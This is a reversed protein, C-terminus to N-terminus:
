HNASGSLAIQGRRGADDPQEATIQMTPFSHPDAASWMHVTASGNPGVTFTGATILGPHGPRSGPRTYWCEYFRGPGLDKLSHVTLQVSWGNSAHEAHAVGSAAGGYPARLPITYTLTAPAPRSVWVAAGTGIAAVSAAALSLAQIHRRRSTAAGTVQGSRSGAPGATSHGPATHAVEPGPQTASPRAQIGPGTQAAEALRAAWEVRALTRAELGPPPQEEASGAGTLPNRLMRAVPELEAAATQCQGCTQLHETFRATDGPDLAGLVWGAVDRHVPGTNGDPAPM